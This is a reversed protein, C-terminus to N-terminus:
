GSDVFEAEKPAVSIVGFHPRVPIRVDRLIGAKGRYRM